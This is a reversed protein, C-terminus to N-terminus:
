VYLECNVSVFAHAYINNDDDRGYCSYKGSDNRDLNEIVLDGSPLRIWKGAQIKQNENVSGAQNNLTRFQRFFIHIHITMSM